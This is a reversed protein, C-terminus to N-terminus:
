AQSMKTSKMTQIANPKFHHATTYSHGMTVNIVLRTTSTFSLHPNPAIGCNILTMIDARKRSQQDLGEDRCPLHSETCTTPIGCKNAIKTLEQALQNHKAKGSEAAHKSRHLLSDVWIDDNNYNAQTSHLFFTYPVPIGLILSTSTFFVQNSLENLRCEPRPGIKM